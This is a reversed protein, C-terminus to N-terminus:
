RDAGKRLPLVINTMMRDVKGDGDKVVSKNSSFHLARAFFKSHVALVFAHAEFEITKAHKTNQHPHHCINQKSGCHTTQTRNHFGNQELENNGGTNGDISLQKDKDIQKLKKQHCLYSFLQTWALNAIVM